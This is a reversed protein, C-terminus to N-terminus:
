QRAEELSLDKSEKKNVAARPALTNATSPAASKSKLRSGAGQRSPILKTRSVQRAAFGLALAFLLSVMDFGVLTWQNDAMNSLLSQRSTVAGLLPLAAFALAGLALWQRWRRWSQTCRLGDWLAVIAIVALTIFFIDVERQARDVMDVPLLRNAYFFGATALPLGCIFSINLGDVLRLGISPKAGTKIAKQQKQAIKVAWLLTGTAVMACGLLGCLFFLGRLVWGAFRATHLAMLTDYTKYTASEPNDLSKLEGTVGDFVLLNRRDTVTQESNLTFSIRSNDRGPGTISVQKLPVAGWQREVQSVLRAADFLPAQTDSPKEQIRAPNLDARFARVDGDYQQLAGWPMFMFMLTILGTYTIILHYPLAMVASVNHADLWSRSGKAPRFSFFDKFIRKHIVVGSILAILMAMTALGVIWRAAVVPLYHLDFHLRYFFNGGRSDRIDSIMQQGDQSVVHEHFKGRREGAKPADAWGFSLYPKRESPFSITWSAADPAKDALYAQGKTIQQEVQRQDYDQFVAQHLEPKSWLSIEHRFYSLSGAFFILLLLWCVALGAWTHLWTMSRFFTEKM